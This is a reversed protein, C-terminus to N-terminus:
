VPGRADVSRRRQTSGADLVRNGGSWVSRSSPRAEISPGFPGTVPRAPPRRAIASSATSAASRAPATRAVAEGEQERGLALGLPRPVQEAVRRPRDPGAERDVRDDGAGVLQPQVGRHEVAVHPLHALREGPAVV